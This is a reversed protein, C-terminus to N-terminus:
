TSDQVITSGLVKIIFMLLKILTWREINGCSALLLSFKSSFILPSNITTKTRKITLEQRSRKWSWHNRWPLFVTPTFERLFGAFPEFPLSICFNTLKHSFLFMFPSIYRSTQPCCVLWFPSYHFVFICKLNFSTQQGFRHSFYINIIPALSRLTPTVGSGPYHTADGNRVSILGLCRLRRPRPSQDPPPLFCAFTRVLKIWSQVCTINTDCPEGRPLCLFIKACNNCEQRENRGYRTLVLSHLKATLMSIFYIYWATTIIM